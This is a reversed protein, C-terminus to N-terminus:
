YLRRFIQAHLEIGSAEKTIMKATEEGVKKRWEM